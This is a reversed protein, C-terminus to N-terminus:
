SSRCQFMARRPAAATSSLAIFEEPVFIAMVFIAIYFVAFVTKISMNKIVRFLAFGIFAGIGASLVWVFLSESIIPMIMHTQRALVSLAPEAVTSLLGFVFGFFIIFAIKKFKILSHGVIKGIPLISEDLGVLFLAQGVLVSVYGVILKFYNFSNSMPAIFVCVM